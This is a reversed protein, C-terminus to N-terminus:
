SNLLTDFKDVLLGRIYQKCSDLNYNEILMKLNKRQNSVEDTQSNKRLLDWFLPNTFVFISIHRATGTKEIIKYDDIILLHKDFRDLFDNSMNLYCERSRLDALTTVGFKSFLDKSRYGIEIRLINNRLNYELGKDYVKFLFNEYRFQKYVKKKDKFCECPYSLKYMLFSENILKSPKAETRLNFGYEYNTLYISNASCKLEIELMTIAENIQSFSFDNYNCAGLGKKANYFSQLSGKFETYTNTSKISINELNVTRTGIDGDKLNVRGMPSLLENQFISKEVINRSSFRGTVNDIM